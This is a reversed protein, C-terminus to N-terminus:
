SFNFLICAITSVFALERETDNLASYRTPDAATFDLAIDRKSNSRRKKNQRINCAARLDQKSAIHQSTENSRLRNRLRVKLVNSLGVQELLAHSPLNAITQERRYGNLVLLKCIEVRRKEFAVRVEMEHYRILRQLPRRKIGVTTIFQKLQESANTGVFEWNIDDDHQTSLGVSMVSTTIKQPVNGAPNVLMSRPLLILSEEVLFAIEDELNTLETPVTAAIRAVDEVTKENMRLSQNVEDSTVILDDKLLRKRRRRQRQQQEGGIANVIRTALVANLEREISSSRRFGLNFVVRHVDRRLLQTRQKDLELLDADVVICDDRSYKKRIEDDTMDLKLKKIVDTAAHPYTKRLAFRLEIFWAEM